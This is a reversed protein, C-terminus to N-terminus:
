GGRGEVWEMEDKCGGTLMEWALLQNRRKERRCRGFGGVVFCGGYRATGRFWFSARVKM